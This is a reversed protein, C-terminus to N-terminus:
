TSGEITIRNNDYVWCLNALQLHGAISAAEHSIGEMLDGDSAIAYVRFGFLEFGPRNFHAALWRSDCALVVPGEPLDGGGNRWRM